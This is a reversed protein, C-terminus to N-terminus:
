LWNSAKIELTKGLVVRGANGQAKSKSKCGLHTAFLVLKSNGNVAQKRTACQLLKKKKELKWV